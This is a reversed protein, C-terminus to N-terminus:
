RSIVYCFSVCGIKCDSYRCKLMYASLMSVSLIFNSLMILVFTKSRFQSRCCKLNCYVKETAGEIILSLVFINKIVNPGLFLTLM